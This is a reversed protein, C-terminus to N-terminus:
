TLLFRGGRDLDLCAPQVQSVMDGVLGAEGTSSSGEIFVRTFRSVLMSNNDTAFWDWSYDSDIRM